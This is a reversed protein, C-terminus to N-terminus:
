SASMGHAISVGDLRTGHLEALTLTSCDRVKRQAAQDREEEEILLAGMREAHDIAQQTPKKAAAEAEKAAAEKKTRASREIEKLVQVVQHHGFRISVQLPTEGRNDLAGIDAGLEILTTVVSVHGQYAATHLPTAGQDTAAETNAGMELLTKVVAVNGEQAAYYLPPAGTATAAEKDVGMELLAKVVAV